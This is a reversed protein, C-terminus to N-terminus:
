VPDIRVRQVDTQRYGRAIEETTLPSNEATPALVNTAALVLSFGTEWPSSGHESFPAPDGPMLDKTNDSLRALWDFAATVVGWDESSLREAFLPRQQLWHSDSLVRQREAESGFGWKGTSGIQHLKHGGLLLQDILIRAAVKRASRARRAETFYTVGATVVGGLIVGALAFLGDSM